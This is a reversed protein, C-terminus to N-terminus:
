KGYYSPSNSTRNLLKYTVMQNKTWASHQCLHKQIESLIIIIQKVQWEEPEQCSVFAIAELHAGYVTQAPLYYEM